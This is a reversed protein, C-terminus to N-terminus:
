PCDEEISYWWVGLAGQHLSMCLRDGQKRREYTAQSPSYNRVRSEGGWPAIKFYPGRTKGSTAMYKEQIVVPAMQTEGRDALGNIRLAATYGYAGVVAVMIFLKDRKINLALPGSSRLLGLFLIPVLISAGILPWSHGSLIFRNGMAGWSIILYIPAILGILAGATRALSPMLASLRPLILFLGILWPAVLFFVDSYARLQPQTIPVIVANAIIFMLALVGLTTAFGAKEPPRATREPIDKMWDFWADDLKLGAPVMMAPGTRPILYYAKSIRRRTRIERIEVHDIDIRSMARRGLLSVSEIRDEYLITRTAIIQLVAFILLAVLSFFILPDAEMTKTLVFLAMFIVSFIQGTYKERYTNSM